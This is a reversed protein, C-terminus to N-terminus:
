HFRLGGVIIVVDVHREKLLDLLGGKLTRNACVHVLVGDVDSLTQVLKAGRTDLVVIAFHFLLTWTASM